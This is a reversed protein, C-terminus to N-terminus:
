SERIVIFVGFAVFATALLGLFGLVPVHILWGWADAISWLFFPAREAM